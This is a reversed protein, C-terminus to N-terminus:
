TAPATDLLTDLWALVANAIRAAIGDILYELWRLGIKALMSQM